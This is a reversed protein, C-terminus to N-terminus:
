EYRLAITPETRLARLAPRWSSVAAALVVLGLVLALLVTDGPATGFVISALAQGAALSLAIGAVVGAAVLWALRGLVLRLVESARAGLAIRIGLERTRRSVAYAVLGHIGTIALTLAQLGFASLAVAAAHMPFMAFRLMDTLSGAGYVPLRPDLTSIQKRLQEVIASAPLSSKVVITTTSDYRQLASLFIAPRPEETLSVYKGDPVLGIIRIPPANPGYRFAKGIPNPMQMIQRAFAQNVLAVRPEQENDHSNFDRGALLPIGMTQLFGPSIGYHSASAQNRGRSQPPHDVSEVTTSSQDMSLPVTNSFAISDIGPMTSLSDLVRQQFQRGQAPQYGALGLDFAATAVHEPQFGLSLTLARQLGRLSLVCGFVLVFCFAIEAAVLIDRFSLRFRGKLVAIGNGGKLLGSLDSRSAHMAPALGFLLGTLLSVGLAFAFVRWDAHVDFQVPFDVPAHWQSVLKSLLAALACGAAGGLLALVVSETLLQCIIRARGAGVSFRIAIERQRDTARALTLGALNSCATLLVIAALLLVGGTFAQVPGRLTSGVLGPEALKMQLGGNVEPFHQAVSAAIRNLDESARTASVGSKLRGVIWTDWTNRNDLWGKGAEIQPQMMMPVWVEPWYFLETGHFSRPAVGLVTYALGNIHVTSGAINPDGGFRSQWTNYSIVAYPSAGPHLDDQQHFFRGLLPQVGLVDFYNGTALYGWVRSPNGSHELSIPAMRYGALGDFTQNNDRFERYNPFSHSPGSRTEVFAVQDPHAIPLPRLLISDIVSFVFTNVGIGLALSLIAAVSFTPSKRLTRLSYQVNRRGEDFWHVRHAERCEEQYRGAGFELRARRAAEQPSLGSRILEAARAERHFAFESDM